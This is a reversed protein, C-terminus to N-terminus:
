GGGSAAEAPPPVLVRITGPIQGGAILSELRARIPPTVPVGQRLLCMGADNFLDEAVIMGPALEVVTVVRSVPQAARDILRGLGEVLAPDYVGTRSALRAVAQPKPVGREVLTDFDFAVKLLRAGLPIATGRRDLSTTGPVDFPKDIHALIETVPELRPIHRLLNRMVEPIAGVRREEDPPLQAGLRAARLMTEPVVISGLRSLIAAVDLEWGGGGGTAAALEQVLGQVRIARGFEDPDALAFVEALVQVSGRLTKDLLEREAVVLRYQAAAADVAVVLTDPPCPKTLFRFVGGRNVVEIAQRVDAYGTLLVRVSDPYQERVRALFQVGDMGPMRLDSVVVAFPGDAALATLGAEGGTATRVEYRKRFQRELGALMNPEDDVFLVRDM